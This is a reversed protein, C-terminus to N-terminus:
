AGPVRDAADTTAAALAAAAFAFACRRKGNGDFAVAEDFRFVLEAAAAPAVAFFGKAATM